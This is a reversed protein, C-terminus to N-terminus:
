AHDGGGNLRMRRWPRWLATVAAPPGADGAGDRHTFLHATLRVIGQRLMDPVDGADAAMGASYTVRVRGAAGPQTVRVWGDGNGDIDIAYADVPLAFAAGEAPVGEVATIARVPTQALRRWERSASLIETVSREILAIGTFAECLGTASLVLGDILGDEEGTEIRLFAKAEVRTVPPTAGSGDLFYGMHGGLNGEGM